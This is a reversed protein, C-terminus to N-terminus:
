LRFPTYVKRKAIAVPKYPNTISPETFAHKGPPIRLTATESSLNLIILFLIKDLIRIYLYLRYDGSDLPQYAGYVLAPTSKRLAILQSYYNFVSHPDTQAAAANIQEYNPNVNIWPTGNTFGAAASADWQMPTRANDRAFPRLQKLITQPTEGRSLLATYRNKIEIDRYDDITAFEVNTM